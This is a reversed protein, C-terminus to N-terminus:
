GPKRGKSKKEDRALGEQIYRRLLGDLSVDQVVAQIKARHREDESVHTYVGKLNKGKYFESGVKIERREM